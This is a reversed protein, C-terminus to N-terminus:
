LKKKLKNKRTKKIKFLFLGLAGVILIIGIFNPATKPINGIINGTISLNSAIVLVGLVGLIAAAVKQYGNHLGEEVAKAIQVPAQKATEYAMDALRNYTTNDIWNNAKLVRLAPYLLKVKELEALPKAVNPLAKAAGENKLLYSLENTADIAHNLYKIGDLSSKKKSLGFLRNWFGESVKGELGKGIIVERGKDTLAEGSVFYDAVETTLYKIDEESLEKKGKEGHADYIEKLKENLKGNLKEQDIYNTLLNEHGKFIPNQNLLEQVGYQIASNVIQEQKSQKNKQSQKNQAM